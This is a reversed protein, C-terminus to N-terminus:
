HFSPGWGIAYNRSLTQINASNNSYEYDFHMNEQLTTLEPLEDFSANM